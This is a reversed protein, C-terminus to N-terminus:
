TRVIKLTKLRQSVHFVNLSSEATKREYKSFGEYISCENEKRNGIKNYIIIRSSKSKEVRREKELLETIMM